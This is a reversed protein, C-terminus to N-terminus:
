VAEYYSQSREQELVENVEPKVKTCRRKPSQDMVAEWTM